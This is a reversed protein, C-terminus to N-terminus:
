LNSFLTFDNDFELSIIYINCLNKQCVVYKCFILFQIIFIENIVYSIM